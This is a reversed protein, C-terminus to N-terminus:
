RHIHVANYRVWLTRESVTDSWPNMLDRAVWQRRDSSIKYVNEGWYSPSHTWCTYLLIAPSPDMISAQTIWWSWLRPSPTQWWVFHLTGVCLLLLSYQTQLEDKNWKEFTSVGLQHLLLVSKFRSTEEISSWYSSIQNQNSKPRWIKPSM